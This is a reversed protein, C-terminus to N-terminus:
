VPLKLLSAVSETTPGQAKSGNVENHAVNTAMLKMTNDEKDKMCFIKIEFLGSM